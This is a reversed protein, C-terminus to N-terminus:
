GSPLAEDPDASGDAYRRTLEERLADLATHVDTRQRSVVIEVEQLFRHIEGLEDDSLSPLRALFGDDLARDVIRRGQRDIDPAEVPISHSPLGPSSVYAGEALIRPLAELLTQEEEGARRRLEFALLDMRGHLLRRYYSLETDVKDCLRRRDRLEDLAVNQLSDAFSDDTIVDIRRRNQDLARGKM